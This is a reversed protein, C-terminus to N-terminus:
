KSLEKQLPTGFKKQALLFFLGPCIFSINSVSVASIVQFIMSLDSVALSMFLCATYVLLSLSLYVGSNMDKYAQHSRVSSASSVLTDELSTSVSSSDFSNLSNPNINHTASSLFFGSLQMKNQFHTSLSKRQLEDFTILIGEKLAFVIFPVHCILIIM